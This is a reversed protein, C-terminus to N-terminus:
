PLAKSSSVCSIMELSNVVSADEDISLFVEDVFKLAMLIKIREYLPMFEYGKKLIAQKTNNVIVILKDGLAKAKELYEVHGAHIPDFYGSAVVVIEKTM